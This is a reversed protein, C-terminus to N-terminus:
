ERCETKRLRMSLSDRSANNWAGAFRRDIGQALSALLPAQWTVFRYFRQM